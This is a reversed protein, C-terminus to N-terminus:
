ESSVIKIAVVSINDRGGADNAATVLADVVSDPSRDTEQLKALTQDDEVMNWLGDSCLLLWDGPKSKGAKM